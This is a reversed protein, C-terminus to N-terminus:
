QTDPPESGSHERLACLAELAADREASVARLSQRLAMLDDRLAVMAERWMAVQGERM